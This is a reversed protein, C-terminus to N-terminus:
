DQKYRYLDPMWSSGAKYIKIGFLKVDSLNLGLVKLDTNKTPSAVLEMKNPEWWDPFHITQDDSHFAFLDVRAIDEPQSLYGADVVEFGASKFLFYYPGSVAVLPAPGNSAKKVKQIIALAQPYTTHAEIANAIERWLFPTAVLALCGVGALKVWAISSAEPKSQRYARSFFLLTIAATLSMYCPQYPFIILPFIALCMTAFFLLRSQSSTAMPKVRFLYIATTAGVFLLHSLMWKYRFCNFRKFADFYAHYNGALLSALYGTGAKGQTTKGTANAVFRQIAEPDNLWQILLLGMLPIVVGAIMALSLKAFKEVFPRRIPQFSAGQVLLIFGLALGNMAFTFPSVLCGIGAIFTSIFALKPTLDRRAVWLSLMVVIFGLTDPRERQTWFPGIPLMLILTGAMMLSAIRTQRDGYRPTVFFWFMAAAAATICFDFIEDAKESVGALAVYLGYIAPFLPPYNSYFKPTLTPNSPTALEVLGRGQALNIGPDKFCTFDGSPPFRPPSCLSFILWAAIGICFAITGTKWLDSYAMLKADSGNNDNPAHM